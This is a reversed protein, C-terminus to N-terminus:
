PDTTPRISAGSRRVAPTLSGPSYQYRAPRFLGFIVDTYGATDTMFERPRVSTQPDLLGDLIYPADPENGTIVVTHLGAYHEATTITRRPVVFRLGDISAVEGGGGASPLRSSPTSTSSGRM